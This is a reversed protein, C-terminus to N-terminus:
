NTSWDTHRGLRLAISALQTMADLRQQTLHDRTRAAWDGRLGALPTGHTLDIAQRLLQYAHAPDSESIARARDALKRFRLVDVAGPDVVVAYGGATRSVQLRPDATALVRRLRAVYSYLATRVERPPEAGWVRDVVVDVPVPHPASILLAALVLRQKTSGLDVPKGDAILEVGGFLRFKM